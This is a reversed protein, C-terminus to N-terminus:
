FSFTESYSIPFVFVILLVCNRITYNFKGESWRHESLLTKLSKILNILKSAWHIFVRLDGNCMMMMRIESWSLNERLIWGVVRVLLDWYIEKIQHFDMLTKGNYVFNVINANKYHKFELFEILCKLKIEFGYSLHLKCQFQKMQMTCFYWCQRSKNIINFSWRCVPFKHLQM